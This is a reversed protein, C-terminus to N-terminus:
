TGADIDAALRRLLQEARRPYKEVYEAWTYQTRYTSPDDVFPWGDYQWVETVTFETNIIDGTSM